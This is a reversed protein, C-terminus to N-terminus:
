EEEGISYVTLTGDGNSSVLTKGDASYALKEPARYNGIEEIVKLEEEVVEGLVIKGTSGSGVVGAWYRGSPDGTVYRFTSKFSHVVKIADDGEPCIIADRVGSIRMKVEPDEAKIKELFDLVDEGMAILEDTAAKRVEFQDDAMRLVLENIRGEDVEVKAQVEPLFRGWASPQGVSAILSRASGVLAISAPKEKPIMLISLPQKTKLSWFRVSGDDSSSAFVEGGPAVAIDTIKKSHGRFSQIKGGNALAWQSAVGNNGGTIISRGTPSFSLVNVQSGTRIEREIEGNQVKRLKVEGNEMGIGLLKGDPSAALSYITQNEEIVKSEEKQDLDWVHLDDGVSSYVKRGKAGVAATDFGNPAIPIGLSPIIRNGTEVDHLHLHQDGGSILMKGDTSFVVPTHRSGAVTIKRVEKGDKADLLHLHQDGDAIAVLRGDPSWVVVEGEKKLKVKWVEKRTKSNFVRVHKDDSAMAFQKGNPSLALTFIDDYDKSTELCKGTEVDWVKFKNDSSGTILRTGDEVFIATCIRGKHGEFKRIEKGDDPGDLKGADLNWLIAIKDDDVGVFREGDPHLAVRLVDDSHKYTMLEKGTALDFRVVMNGGTGVLFEEDGPLVRMGWMSGSGTKEFRRVLKGTGIEWLAAYGDRSSSLVHKGDSLSIIEALSGTHQFGALGLVEEEKLIGALSMGVLWYSIGITVVSKM